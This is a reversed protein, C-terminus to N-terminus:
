KLGYRWLLRYFQLRDVGAARAAAAVNQGHAEFMTRVYECDFSERVERIPRAADVFARESAVPSPDIPAPLELAVCREIYNRLERVNGPWDHRGLERVFDQSRFRAALEPAVKISGLIHDILLPLDDVRERLPPLRVEVVALRFYLDSRFRHANVEANLSRNTAAVVRVDVPQYTNRGVRKIERRELVRLLKPQLDAPLEGIEDLFITGGSAEEFAGTRVHDAGTFAGREHGFLESALLDPAIASCDIIIFPGSRRSSAEHIAEAVREKGTGTEGEVLITSDTPAANELSAFVARMAKSRGVLPGFRERGSLPVSIEGDGIEFRLRSQGCTLTMKPELSAELIEVDNVFTGNRSDLDRVKAQGGVISLECHFRSVTPDELVLDCSRHAGIVAREGTSSYTRGAETGDLVVLKFQRVLSESPAQPLRLEVTRTPTESSPPTRKRRKKM